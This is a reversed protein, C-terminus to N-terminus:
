NAITTKELTMNVPTNLARLFKIIYKLFGISHTGEKRARERYTLAYMIKGHTAIEACCSRPVKM